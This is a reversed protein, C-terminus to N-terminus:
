EFANNSAHISSSASPSKKASTTTTTTVQESSATVQARGGTRDGGRVSWGGEVVTWWWSELMDCIVDLVRSMAYGSHLVCRNTSGSWKRMVASFNRDTSERRACRRNRPPKSDEAVKSSCKCQIGRGEMSCKNSWGCCLLLSLKVLSPLMSRM